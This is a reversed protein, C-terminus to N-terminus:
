EVTEYIRLGTLKLNYCQDGSSQSYTAHSGFSMYGNTSGARWNVGTQTGILVDDLYLSTTNGDASIVIKVTKGSMCDLVAQSSGSLDGWVNVWNRTTGSDSSYGYMSWGVGSRWVFPSMGYYNQGSSNANSLVLQRIHYSTNGEFHAYSVDYEITKGRISFDGGFYIRQTAETFEVGNSSQVPASHGSGASLVATKGAVLDTLSQTFDWNYLYVIPIDSVIVDFTTTKGSYRVTITSTGVELTGTLIYNSITESTGDSYNGTVVLYQKLSDLSDTPYIVTQGQNFTATISILNAEPYLAEELASLYSQGNNSTWVVNSFCNLLAIKIDDSLESDGGSKGDTICYLIGDSLKTDPLADYQAQTVEKYTKIHAVNEEDLVSIGNQLVDVVAGAGGSGYVAGNLYIKHTDTVYYIIGDTNKSSPLEDYEDQTLIREIVSRVGSKVQFKRSGADSDGETLNNDVAFFDSDLINDGAPLEIIRKDQGAM